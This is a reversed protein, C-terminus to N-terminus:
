MQGIIEETSSVIVLIMERMFDLCNLSLKILERGDM